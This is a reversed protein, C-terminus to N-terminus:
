TYNMNAHHRPSFLPWVHAHIEPLFAFSAFRWGRDCMHFSCGVSTWNSTARSSWTRSWRCSTFSLHGSAPKCGCSM